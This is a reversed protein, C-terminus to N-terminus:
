YNPPGKNFYCNVIEIVQLDVIDVKIIKSYGLPIALEVNNIVRDSLAFTFDHIPCDVEGQHWHKEDKASCHIDDHHHVLLSHVQQMAQPVMFSVLMLLSLVRTSLTSNM